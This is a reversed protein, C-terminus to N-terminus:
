PWWTLVSFAAMLVAVAILIWFLTTKNESM